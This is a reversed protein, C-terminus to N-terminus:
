HALKGERSVRETSSDRPLQLQDHFTNRPMLNSPATSNGNERHVERSSTAPTVTMEGDVLFSAHQLKDQLDFNYMLINPFPGCVLYDIRARGKRLLCIIYKRLAFKVCPDM